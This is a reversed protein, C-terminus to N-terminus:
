TRLARAAVALTIRRAGNARLIRSIENATAGTTLVDDVLLIHRNALSRRNPFAYGKKLAFAHRVNEVRDHDDLWAQKGIRRTMKVLSRCPIANVRAVGEAIVRTSTGGRTLQRTFHSPVYTVCDAPDSALEAAARGGLRRGIADALLLRSLYKSAVVVDCIRDQYPWLTLVQDFEFSENRCAFCRAQDAGAPRPRGCRGCIRRMPQSAADLIRQCDTCFDESPRAMEACLRCTAPLLLEAAASGGAAACGRLRDLMARIEGTM